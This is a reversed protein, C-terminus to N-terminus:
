EAHIWEDEQAAEGNKGFSYLEYRRSASSDNLHYQIEHLWGDVPIYDPNKVAQKFYPGSWQKAINEDYPKRSLDALSEPYRNTDLHYNEIAGDVVQLTSKTTKRRSDELQGGFFRMAGVALISMLAVAFLIEIMSFGSKVTRTMM